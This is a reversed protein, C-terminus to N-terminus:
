ALSLYGFFPHAHPHAAGGRVGKKRFSARSPQATVNETQNKVKAEIIKFGAQATMQITRQPDFCSIFMPAGLWEGTVDDFDGAEM